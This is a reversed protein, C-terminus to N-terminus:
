KYPSYAQVINLHVKKTKTTFSAMIIRPGNAEWGRFTKEARKGIIMGVGDRHPGEEHGSYIMLEGTQLRKKDSGIWHTESIGLIHLRYRNMEQAVQATKGAEYLTKVNWSGIRLTKNSSPPTQMTAEKRSQGDLKMLGVATPAGNDGLSQLHNERTQTETVIKKKRISCNVRHWGGVQLVLPGRKPVGGQTSSLRRKRCALM